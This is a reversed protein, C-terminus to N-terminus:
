TLDVVSEQNLWKVNQLAIYCSESYSSKMGEYELLFSPYLFLVCSPGWSRFAFM